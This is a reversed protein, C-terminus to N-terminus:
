TCSREPQMGAANQCNRSCGLTTETALPRFLPLALNCRIGEANQCNRSREQLLIKFCFYHSTSALSTNWKCQPQAESTNPNSVAHTRSAKQNANLAPPPQPEPPTHLTTQYATQHATQHATSTRNSTRKIHPKIHPQHAAQHAGSIFTKSIFSKSILGPYCFLFM